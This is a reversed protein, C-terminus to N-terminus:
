LPQGALREAQRDRDSAAIVILMVMLAVSYESGGTAFEGVFWGFRWHILAIGGAAICFLPVTAWRVFYGMILLTGAIIESLTISWVWLQGNPFGMTEMARGFIPITGLVIRTIAHAMFLAATTVRLVLMANKSSLFPFKEIFGHLVQIV